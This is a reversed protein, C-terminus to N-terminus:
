KSKPKRKEKEDRKVGGEQYQTHLHSWILMHYLIVDGIKELWMDEGYTETPKESSIMHQLSALHKCVLAWLFRLESLGSLAAGAYISGCQTSGYEKAKRTYLENLYNHLAGFQEQYSQKNM